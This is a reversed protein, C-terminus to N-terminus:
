QHRDSEPNSAVDVIVISINDSGGANLALETLVTAVTGPQGDSALVEAIVDDELEGTLGDSCLLFREGPRVPFTWVDPEIVPSLGLAQTVLHRSRHTRAEAETIRGADILRQVHSHDVTLRRTTGEFSAYARSDGINALVWEPDDPGMTLVLAVGTTGMDTHRGDITTTRITENISRFTEVVRAQDVSGTRLQQLGEIVLASAIEGGEHGGMGDAVAFVPPLALVADENHERVLGVVSSQAWSLSDTPVTTM